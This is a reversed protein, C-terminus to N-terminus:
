DLREGFKRCQIWIGHEAAQEELTELDSEGFFRKLFETVDEGTKVCALIGYEESVIEIFDFTPTEHYHKPKSVIIKPM